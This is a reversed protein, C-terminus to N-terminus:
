KLAGTVSTIVTIALTWSAALSLATCAFWGAAGFAVARRIVPVARLVCRSADLWDLGGVVSAM